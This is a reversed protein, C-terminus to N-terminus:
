VVSLFAQWKLAIELGAAGLNFQGIKEFLYGIMASVEKMTIIVLYYPM